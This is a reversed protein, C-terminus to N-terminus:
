NNMELPSRTGRSFCPRVGRRFTLRHTIGDLNDTGSEVLRRGSIDNEPSDDVGLGEAVEQNRVILTFDDRPGSGILQHPHELLALGNGVDHEAHPAAVHGSAFTGLEQLIVDVDNVAELAPRCCQPCELVAKCRPETRGDVEVGGLLPLALLKM